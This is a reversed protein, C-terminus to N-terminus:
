RSEKGDLLEDLNNCRAKAFSSPTPRNLADGLTFNTVAPAPEDGDELELKTIDPVEEVDSFREDDKEHLDPRSRKPKPIDEESARAEGNKVSTGCKGCFNPPAHNYEMKFGCNYCFVQNM